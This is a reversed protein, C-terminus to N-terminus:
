PRDTRKRLRVVFRALDEPLEADFELWEGTVPHEFALRAAHLALRPAGSQDEVPPGERRKRYTPDGCV